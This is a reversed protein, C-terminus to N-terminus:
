LIYYKVGINQGPNNEKLWKNFARKVETATSFDDLLWCGFLNTSRWNGSSDMDEIRKFRHRSDEANRTDWTSGDEFHVCFHLDGHTDVFKQKAM